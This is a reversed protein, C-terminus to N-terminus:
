PASLNGNADVVVARTGVGALGSVSLAGTLSLGTSTFRAVSLALLSADSSLVGLDLIGYTGTGTGWGLVRSTGSAFDITTRSAANATVAGTSALANSTSLLGTASLTTFAGTGPTTAGIPTGDISGGTIIVQTNWGVILWSTGTPEVTINGYRVSLIHSTVGNILNSGATITVTNASADTKIVRRRRNGTPSPLTITINGATADVQLSDIEDRDTFTYDSAVAYPEFRTSLGVLRGQLVRQWDDPIKENVILQTPLRM